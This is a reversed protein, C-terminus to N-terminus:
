LLIESVETKKEDNTFKLQICGDKEFNFFFRDGKKYKSLQETPIDFIGIGYHLISITKIKKKFIDHLIAGSFGKDEVKLKCNIM